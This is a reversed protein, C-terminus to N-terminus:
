VENQPKLKLDGAIQSGCKSDCIATAILDRSKSCKSGLQHMNFLRGARRLPQGRQPDPRRMIGSPKKPELHWEKM